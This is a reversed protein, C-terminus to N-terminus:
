GRAEPTPKPVAYKDKTKGKTKGDGQSNGKPKKPARVGFPAEKFKPNGPIFNEPKLNLRFAAFSFASPLYGEPLTVEAKKPVTLDLGWYVANIVLRRLDEDLLGTSAGMTTTFIKNTNGTENKFERVWTLPQMPDNKGAVEASDPELTETVAGRQLITSPKLPNAGYVDETVFCTGVGNLVPHDANAQEVYSRSGEVKHKGHHNVWTEGLIQRGFGKHWGTDESANFSYRAWKSDKPFNFAHTSTRLAVVPIGRNFASEFKEMAEDQWHRFRLSMVIADASDLSEPHSLNEGADPNVCGNEDLSFLVTAKFGQRALIQALMPMAEESRYEEDGALLVVHKGEGPGKTGEFVLHDPSSASNAVEQAVATFAAFILATSAALITQPRTKRKNVIM